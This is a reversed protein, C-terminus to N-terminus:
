LQFQVELEILDYYLDKIRILKEEFLSNKTKIKERLNDFEVIKEQSYKLHIKQVYRQVELLQELEKTLSIKGQAMFKTLSSFEDGLMEILKLYTIILGTKSFAVYGFKNILRQSYSVYSGLVRDQKKINKLIDWNKEKSATISEELMYLIINYIRILLGDVDEKHDSTIDKFIVKTKTQSTIIMGPVERAVHDLVDRQQTKEILFTIEDYGAIYSADAYTFAMDDKLGKIDITIKKATRKEDTSILINNEIQELNIQAGKVLNNNKIWASPMSVVATSPSIQILKRKM